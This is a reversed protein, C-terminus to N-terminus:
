LFLDLAVFCFHIQKNKSMKSFDYFQLNGDLPLKDKATEFVQKMNQFKIFVPTKVNKVLGNRIYPEYM